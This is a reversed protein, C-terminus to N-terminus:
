AKNEEKGVARGGNDAASPKTKPIGQATVKYSHGGLDLFLSSTLTRLDLSLYDSLYM